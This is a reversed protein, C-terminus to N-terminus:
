PLTKKRRGGPAGDFGADGCGAQDRVSDPCQMTTLWTTWEYIRRIGRM